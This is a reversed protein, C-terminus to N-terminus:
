VASSDGFKFVKNDDNVDPYGSFEVNFVREEDFKYAFKVGGATAALPIIFDESEDSDAMEIPHLRLEKAVSLLNVGIGNTVDVRQKTADVGGSLTASATAVSAALTFDNGVVGNLKYTATVTTADGTYDAIGVSLSNVANLAATALAVTAAVDAGIGIEYPTSPSSKFTFVVGNVTVTDDAVANVAGFNITGAAKVGDSVLTAGPMVSVMNELTTEALPVKVKVDRKTIYENILSEGFQDVTMPHTDTSVDVEVGGKTYGLDVGDYIVKCVGLKVNNTNSM